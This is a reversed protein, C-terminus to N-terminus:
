ADGEEEFVPAELGWSDWGPRAARANLEIRPLTPYYDELLELGWTPKASHDGVPAEFWSPWQRGPAPPVVPGRKALIFIEHEGTLWYGTGRRKGARVKRWVAHTVYEFGWQGVVYLAQPLMPATAWCGLVCAPAAIDQVRREAIAATESTPYHGDPSRDLGTERSYVQFRWEPDAYIVGFRKDPLARIRHGLIEERSARALAKDGGRVLGVSVAGVSRQQSSRWIALRAEFNDDALGALRQSRSSLNRDIGAAALTPRDDTKPPGDDPCGLKPRGAGARGRNLGVTARQAAILVGLRREARLRLEAAQVELDRNRAQRAYVRMADTQDRLDKAADVTVAAAIASCAAEYSALADLAAPPLPGDDGPRPLLWSWANGETV